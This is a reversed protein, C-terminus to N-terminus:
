RSEYALVRAMAAAAREFSQFLPIGKEHFKPSISAVYEAEHAPHLIVLFPKESRQQHTAITEITKNLSEPVKKWQRAAFM